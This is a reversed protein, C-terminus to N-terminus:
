VLMSDHGHLSVMLGSLTIVLSGPRPCVVAAAAATKIPARALTAHPLLLSLLLPLLM